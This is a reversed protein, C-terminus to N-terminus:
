ISTDWDARYLSFVKALEHMHGVLGGLSELTISCPGISATRGDESVSLIHAQGKAIKGKAIWEAIHTVGNRLHLLEEERSSLSDM